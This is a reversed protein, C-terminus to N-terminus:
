WLMLIKRTLAITIASWKRQMEEVYVHRRESERRILYHETVAKFNCRCNLLTDLGINLHQWIMRCFLLSPASRQTVGQFRKAGGFVQLSKKKLLVMQPIIFDHHVCIHGIINSTLM